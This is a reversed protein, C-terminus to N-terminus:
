RSLLSASARRAASLTRADCAAERMKAFSALNPSRTAATATVPAIFALDLSPSPMFLFRIRLVGKAIPPDSGFERRLCRRRRRSTLTHLTERRLFLFDAEFFPGLMRSRCAARAPPRTRLRLRVLPFALAFCPSPLRCRAFFPFDLFFPPKRGSSGSRPARPANPLTAPPAALM